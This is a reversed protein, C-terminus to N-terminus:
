GIKSGILRLQEKKLKEYSTRSYTELDRPYEIGPTMKSYDGQNWCERIAKYATTHALFALISQPMEAEVFLDANQTIVGYLTDNIPLIVTQMWTAWRKVKEPDDPQSYVSEGDPQPKSLESLHDESLATMMALRSARTLAFIPGYLEKLQRSVRTLQENRQNTRLTIFYTILYGALALAITTITTVLFTADM